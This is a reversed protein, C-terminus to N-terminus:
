FLWFSQHCKHWESRDSPRQGGDRLCPSLKSLSAMSQKGKHLTLPSEARSLRWNVSRFPCPAKSMANNRQLHYPSTVRTPSIAPPCLILLRGFGARQPPCGSPLNLRQDLLSCLQHKTQATANNTVGYVSRTTCSWQLLTERDRQKANSGFAM